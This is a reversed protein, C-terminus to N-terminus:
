SIGCAYMGKYLGHGTVAFETELEVTSSVFSSLATKGRACRYADEAGLEFAAYRYEGLVSKPRGGAGIIEGLATVRAAIAIKLRLFHQATRRTTGFVDFVMDEYDLPPGPVEM